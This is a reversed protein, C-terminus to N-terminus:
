GATAHRERGSRWFLTLLAACVVACVVMTAVGAARGGLADCLSFDAADQGLVWMQAVALSNNAIHLLSCILASGTRYYLIGLIIGMLSAFFTQLPNLHLIGFLLSAVIIAVAPHTGHRHLYGQIGERFVLEECVPCVMGVTLAGLPTTAVAMLTEFMTDPLDALESMVNLAVVGFLGAVLGASATQLTLGTRGFASSASRLMGLPWWVLLASLVGSAALCLSLTAPPVGGADAGSLRLAVAMLLGCGAQMAGYVLFATVAKLYRNM